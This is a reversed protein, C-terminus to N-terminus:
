HEIEVKTLSAIDQSTLQKQCLAEQKMQWNQGQFIMKDGLIRCGRLTNDNDFSEIFQPCIPYSSFFKEVEDMKLSLEKISKIPKSLKNNEYLEDTSWSQRFGKWKDQFCHWEQVRYGNVKRIYIHGQELVSQPSVAGLDVTHTNNIKLSVGVNVDYGGWVDILEINDIKNILKSISHRDIQELILIYGIFIIAMVIPLVVFIKFINFIVKAIM